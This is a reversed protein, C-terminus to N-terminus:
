RFFSIPSYPASYDSSSLESSFYLQPFRCIYATGTHCRIRPVNHDHLRDYLRSRRSVPAGKLHTLTRAPRWHRGARMIGALPDNTLFCQM